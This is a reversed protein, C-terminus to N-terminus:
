PAQDAEVRSATGPVVTVEKTCQDGYYKTYASNKICFRLRYALGDKWMFPPVPRPVGISV